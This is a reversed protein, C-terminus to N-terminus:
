LVCQTRFFPTGGRTLVCVFQGVDGDERELWLSVCSTLALSLPSIPQVYNKLKTITGDLVPMPM